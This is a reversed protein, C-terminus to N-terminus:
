TVTGYEAIIDNPLVAATVLETTINTTCAAPMPHCVAVPPAARPVGVRARAALKARGVLECSECAASAAALDRFDVFCDGGVRSAGGAFRRGRFRPAADGGAAAARVPLRSAVTDGGGRQPVRSTLRRRVGWGWAEQGRDRQGGAWAVVTVM